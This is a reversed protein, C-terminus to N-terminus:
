ATGQPMVYMKGSAEAVLTGDDLTIRARTEVLKRTRRTLWAELHLREGIAATRRLRVRMEATLCHCNLFYPPYNLAEDLLCSIIGGHVIGPWGQYAEGPTFDARATEGNWEFKLRLGIPNLDGCGFCMAPDEGTNVKIKPRIEM